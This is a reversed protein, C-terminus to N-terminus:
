RRRVVPQSGSGTELYGAGVQDQPMLVRISWRGRPILRRVARVAVIRGSRSGLVLRSINVWTHALTFRQMYVFHGAFSTAAKVYFHFYGSRSPAPLKILPAVQVIVSSESTKIQAQYTTTIQPTVTFSFAGNTTTQLTALVQKTTQGAPLQVLTVTEGAKKSSVTGTLTVQTGFKVVPASAALTVVAPAGKVVITGKLAPHLADHYGFTGAQEFKHVYTGGPSLIPSAFQGRNAVIQHTKTDVNKWSVSDGATITVKAPRFGGSRIQVSATATPATSAPAAFVLALAVVAGLFLRRTTNM